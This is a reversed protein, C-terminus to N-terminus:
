RRGAWGGIGELVAAYLLGILKFAGSMLAHCLMVYLTVMALLRFPDFEDLSWCCSEAAEAAPPLQEVPVPMYTDAFAPDAALAALVPAMAMGALVGARKGAGFATM